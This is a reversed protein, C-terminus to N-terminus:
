PEKPPTCHREIQQLEGYEQALRGLQGEALEGAERPWDLWYEEIPLRVAERSPEFGLENLQNVRRQAAERTSFLGLSVGNANPGTAILFYDEVKNAKLEAVVARAEGRSPLPPLLVWYGEKRGTKQSTRQWSPRDWQQLREMLRRAQQPEELPGLSYCRAQGAQPQEERLLELRQVDTADPGATAPSGRYHWAFLSINVLLLLYILWKM